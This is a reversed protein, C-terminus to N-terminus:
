KKAVREPKQTKFDTKKSATRNQSDKIEIEISAQKLTKEFTYKIWGSQSIQTAEKPLTLARDDDFEGSAKIVSQYPPTGGTVFTTVVKENVQLDAITMPTTGGGTASGFYFGVITGLIGLLGAFVERARKFRDDSSETFAYCVLMFALGITAICIIFTILGRAFSPESLKDIVPFGKAIGLIIIAAFAAMVVTGPSTKVPQVIYRHIWGLNRPLQKEIIKQKPDEVDDNAMM